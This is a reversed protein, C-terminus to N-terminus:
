PAMTVRGPGQACSAVPSLGAVPAALHRLVRRKMGGPLYGEVAVFADACGGHRLSRGLGKLATLPWSLGPGLGTRLDRCACRWRGIWPVAALALGLDPEFLAVRNGVQVLPLAPAFARRFYM